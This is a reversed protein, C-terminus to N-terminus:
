GRKKEGPVFEEMVVQRMLDLPLLGQALLFDHYRQRDFKPGLAKEVEARLDMFHLYGCYYAPAQGPNRFTYRDVEQRAMAPSLVVEDQLLKLAAEETIAGSQLEPDLFARAARLLRQQLGILQGDLPLYPKMEAEAYLAWGEVNTSNFAFLARPMSVGAEVMSAFQLEHGPRGEHATLTWSAADFTFDDFKLTGQGDKGPINLPLIFTGMEGTNGILRPPRMTPAPVAAAEAASAIRVQMDRRPLTVVHNDAILKEMDKIRAQYHPLIADGVLQEKKLERIVDRYDATSWGRAKAVQPALAQMETQINRFGEHARRTLEPAPLDVGFNARLSHEYVKPPLRFDTRSRPLIEARVFADYEALQTRLAALAEGAGAVRSDAFLKTIGDAYTSSNALDREVESRVPGLLGAVGLRERIRDMALTALPTYGPELGTYRKLRVLGAAHREAPAQPDFLGQLGQYITGAVDFYPIVTDHDLQSGELNERIRDMLIHLDQKVHPDAEAAERKELAALAERGAAMGREYLGPKLDLVQDDLGPLGVQGAMEPAFRAMVELVVMANANSTTIWAPPAAPAQQARAPALCGAVLGTVLTLRKLGLSMRDM